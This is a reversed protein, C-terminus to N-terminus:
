KYERCKIDNCNFIERLISRHCQLDDKEYCILFVDKGEDLYEKIEYFSKEFESSTSAQEIYEERFEQWNMLGDKYRAFIYESPALSPRWILNYKKPNFTTTPRFRTILIKVVDENDPLNKINSLYTTYLM